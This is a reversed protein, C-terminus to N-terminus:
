GIKFVPKVAELSGLTYFVEQWQELKFRHTIFLLTVEKKEALYRTKKGTKM